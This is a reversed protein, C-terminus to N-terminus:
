IRHFVIPKPFHLRFLTEFEFKLAALSSVFYVLHKNLFKFICFTYRPILRMTEYDRLINQFKYFSYLSIFNLLYSLVFSLVFTVKSVASVTIVAKRVLRVESFRYENTGPENLVLEFKEDRNLNDVCLLKYIEDGVSTQIYLTGPSGHNSSSSEGGEVLLKGRFIFPKMLTVTM